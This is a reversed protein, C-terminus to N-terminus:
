KAVRSSRPRVGRVVLSGTLLVGGILLVYDARVGLLIAASGGVFGWIAPIVALALPVTGAATLLLGITLLATPCPVGFTPMLPYEHGLAINVFPYALAYVALGLGLIRVPRASSFYDFRKRTGAWFFLAAQVAFLGGFLWAAPNIRTFLLAHYAAANWMWLAALLLNAAHGSKLRGRLTEALVFASAIWLLVAVPWFLENYDAFVGFFQERPFPFSWRLITV